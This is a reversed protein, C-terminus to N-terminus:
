QVTEFNPKSGLNGDGLDSNSANRIIETLYAELFKVDTFGEM